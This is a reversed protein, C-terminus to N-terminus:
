VIYKDGHPLPWKETTAHHTHTHKYTYTHTHTKGRISKERNGESVQQKGTTTKSFYLEYEVCIIWKLSM